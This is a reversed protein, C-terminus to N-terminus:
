ILEAPVDAPLGVLALGLSERKAKTVLLYFLRAPYVGLSHASHRDHFYSAMDALPSRQEKNSGVKGRGIM